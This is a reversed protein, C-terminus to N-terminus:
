MAKQTFLAGYVNNSVKYILDPSPYIDISYPFVYQYFVTNNTGLKVM